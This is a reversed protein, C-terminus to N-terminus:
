SGVSGPPDTAEAAPVRRRRLWDVEPSRLGVAGGVVVVVGVAIALALVGLCGAKDLGAVDFPSLVAAVAAAMLMTLGATRVLSGLVPPTIPRAVHRRVLALLLGVQLTASLATSWALGAVGLPWILTLNLALNFGVMGLSVRLPTTADDVAYYARTLVHTLSYAWVASGYGALVAASRLADDGTFDRWEFFVRTLPV